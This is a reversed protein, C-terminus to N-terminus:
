IEVVQADEPLLEGLYGWQRSVVRTGGIRYDVNYHTHGHIWLPPQTEEVLAGLNSAFAPSLSDDYKPHNSGAAPAHHTVVVTTGDFAASLESSLWAISQRHAERAHAPMFLTSGHRIWRHDSMRDEALRMAEDARDRGNIDYDTWLTCGLVRLARGRISFEASGNELFKVNETCAAADALSQLLSPYEHGYFEHNGAVYVVSLGPFQSAAWAIGGTGGVIDGALVVLDATRAQGIAAKCVGELCAAAEADGMGSNLMEGRRIDLHLDSLLAIRVIQTM